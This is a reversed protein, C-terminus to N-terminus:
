FDRWLGTLATLGVVHFILLFFVGLWVVGMLVPRIGGHGAEGGVAHVFADYGEDGAGDVAEGVEEDGNGWDWDYHAEMHGFALADTHHNQKGQAEHDGGDAHDPRVIYPINELFRVILSPPRIWQVNARSHFDVHANYTKKRERGGRDVLRKRFFFLDASADGGDAGEEGVVEAAVVAVAVTM